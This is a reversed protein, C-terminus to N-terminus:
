VVVSTTTKLFAEFSKHLLLVLRGTSRCLNHLGWCQRSCEESARESEGADRMDLTVLSMTTRPPEIFMMTHKRHLM